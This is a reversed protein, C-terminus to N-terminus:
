PRRYDLRHKNAEKVMGQQARALHFRLHDLIEDRSHLSDALAQVRVEGPLFQGLSPPCSGYVVEFPTTGAAM